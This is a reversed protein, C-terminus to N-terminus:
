RSVTEDIYSVSHRVFDPRLHSTDKYMPEGNADLSECRQTCLHDLPDIVVAGAGIATRKLDGRILDFESGLDARDLGGKRMMFIDPFELIDRRAMFKPDFPKGTPINTILYVQKGEQVMAQIFSALKALIYNYRVDGQELPSSLSWGSSLYGYWQAGIVVRDIEPMAKVLAVVELILNQCHEYGPGREVDQVPLCGGGTKFIASNTGGPSSKILQEIRPYYQEINSDGVFLTTAANSSKQLYYAIGKYEHSELRGPYDWEGAAKVIKSFGALRSSNDDKSYLYFSIASLILSFLVLLWIKFRERESSRVPREVYRYTLWALLVSLALVAARLLESPEENAVIRAYSLLPWHWLYLPYSILGVFVMLPSALLTRNVWAEAGAFIIMSAGLVPFVAWIGPFALGKGIVFLSVAILLLGALSLINSLLAYRRSESFTSFTRLLFFLSRDFVSFIFKRHHLDVYSVLSGALLEWFRVHPLYYAVGPTSRVALINLAFSVMGVVIIVSLLNFGLRWAIVMLLPFVFYFQEEVSLSWMHTLPKLDSAVDFYGAEGALVFNQFYFFSAIVHKSLMKLEDPLLLLCGAGLVVSVVAILAPFLRKVRHAYFNRFSFGGGQVGRM